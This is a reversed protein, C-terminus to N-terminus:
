MTALKCGARVEIRYFIIDGKDYDLVVTTRGSGITTNKLQDANAWSASSGIQISFKRSSAMM